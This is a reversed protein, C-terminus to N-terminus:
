VLVQSFNSWRGRYDQLNDVSEQIFTHFKHLHSDQDTQSM